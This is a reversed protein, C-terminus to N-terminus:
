RDGNIEPERNYENNGYGCCDDAESTWEGCESCVFLEDSLTEETDDVIDM